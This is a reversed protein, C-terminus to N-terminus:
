VAAGIYGGGFRQHKQSSRPHRTSVNPISASGDTQIHGNENRRLLNYVQLASELHQRFFREDPIFRSHIPTHLDPVSLSFVGINKMDHFYASDFLSTLELTGVSPDQVSALLATAMSPVIKNSM